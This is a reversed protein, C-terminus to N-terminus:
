NARRMRRRVVLGFLIGCFALLFAFTTNGQVAMVVAAVLILAPAWAMIRSFRFGDGQKGKSAM